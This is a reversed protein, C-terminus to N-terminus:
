TYLSMRSSHCYYSTTGLHEDYISMYTGSGQRFNAQFVVSAPISYEGTAVKVASSVSIENPIVQEFNKRVTSYQGRQYACEKITNPFEPSKARNFLVAATLCCQEETVWYMGGCELYTIMAMYRIDEYSLHLKDLEYEVITDNYLKAAEEGSATDRSLVAVKINELCTTLTEEILAETDIEETVDADEYFLEVPFDNCLLGYDTIVPTSTVEPEDMLGVNAADVISESLFVIFLMIVVVLALRKPFGEWDITYM